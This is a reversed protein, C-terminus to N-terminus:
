IPPTSSRVTSSASIDLIQHCFVKISCLQILSDFSPPFVLALQQEQRSQLKNHFSLNPNATVSTQAPHSQHWSQCISQPSHRSLCQRARPVPLLAYPQGRHDARPLCIPHAPPVNPTTSNCSALLPDRPDNSFPNRM